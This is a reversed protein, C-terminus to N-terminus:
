EVRIWTQTRYFLGVYGRVKLRKSNNPDLWIKAKYKEGNEPDVITGGAWESKNWKMGRIILLGIIPKNNLSGECKTCKPNVEQGKKPYLKEIKGYMIGDKRYLSVVSKNKHTDDDVTIWRGICSQGFASMSIFIALIVSIGKMQYFYTKRM